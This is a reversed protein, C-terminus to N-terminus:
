RGHSGDPESRQSATSPDRDGALPSDGGARQTIALLRRALQRTVDAHDYTDRVLREAADVLPHWVAPRAADEIAAALDPPEDAVLLHEGDRAAIGAVGISTSVVPRRHAFAELVKIRTGSGSRLPVVVVDAGAYWPTLEPVWGASRVREPFELAAGPPAGVLDVRWEPALRPLVEQVLWHAGDRNPPYTFNAVFLLRHRGPPESPPSRPTTVANAVVVVRDGLQWREAIPGRDAPSAVMVLDARPLCLAAVRAWQGAAVDDGSGRHYAVDDDDVDVVLPVELREAIMLALPTVALRCGIVGAVDRGAVLELVEEGRSPPAAAVADPLPALAELRPRWRKDALWALVPAHDGPRSPELDFRVMPRAAPGSGITPPGTAPEPLRGAVPVVVLVVDHDVAAATVVAHCRMALGNGTPAPAIPTVVVLTPRHGVITGGVATESRRM